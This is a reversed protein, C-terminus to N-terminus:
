ASKGGSMTRNVESVSTIGEVVKSLAAEQLYLMRQKRLHARLQDMSGTQPNSLLKRAADDLVMVEFVGVRGMYSLGHCAPCPQPKGKVMVQGSAKYLQQVKDQPLNLKRLAEPDPKFAIRCAPCLKRVLRVAVIARLHSAAQRADGVAKVWTRLATFTDEQRMGAYVRTEGSSEALLRAEQADGLKSLMLVQPDQRLLQTLKGTVEAADNGQITNHSVGEIETLVQDELTVISQTYPDHQQLLSYLTTSLGQHAPATVLVVGKSGILVPGLLEKQSPLLGLEPLPILLQKGPDISIQMLLERTSGATLIGLVHRGMENADLHVKGAQKRRRDEIDLGANEKLYDILLLASRVEPAALPYKVGDVTASATAKQNGTIALDVREAQRPLAYQLISELLAHAAVRPDQGIPVALRQGNSQTLAIAAQKQARAGQVAEVRQSVAKLDFKWLSEPPVKGSLNRYAIYGALGGAMLFLALFLGLWFYPIALWLLLAVTGVTLQVSNWLARPMYYRELDKDLTGVVWAWPAFILLMLIPKYISLYSVPLVAHSPTPDAQVTPLTSAAPSAEAAWAPVAATIALFLGLLLLLNLLRRPM